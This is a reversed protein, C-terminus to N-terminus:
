PHGAHPHSDRFKKASQFMGPSPPSGHMHELTTIRYDLNRIICTLIFIAAFIAAIKLIFEVGSNFCPMEDRALRKLERIEQSTFNNM